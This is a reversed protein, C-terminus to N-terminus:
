STLPTAAEPPSHVPPAAGPVNARPYRVGYSKKENKAPSPLSLALLKFAKASCMNVRANKGGQSDADAEDDSARDRM